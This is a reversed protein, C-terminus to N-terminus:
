NEYVNAAAIGFIQDVWKTTQSFAVFWGLGFAVGFRNCMSWSTEMCLLQQYSMKSMLWTRLVVPSAIFGGFCMIFTVYQCARYKLFTKGHKHDLEDKDDTISKFYRQIGFMYESFTQPLRNNLCDGNEDNIWHSRLKPNYSDIVFPLYLAGSLLVCTTVKSKFIQPGNYYNYMNTLRKVKVKSMTKSILRIAYASTTFCICFDGVLSFNRQLMSAPVICRIPQSIQNGNTDTFMSM